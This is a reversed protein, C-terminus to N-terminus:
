GPLFTRIRVCCCSSIYIIFECRIRGATAHMYHFISSKSFHSFDSICLKKKLKPSLKAAKLGTMWNESRFPILNLFSYNFRVDEVTSMIEEQASQQSMKLQAVQNGFDNELQFITLNLM